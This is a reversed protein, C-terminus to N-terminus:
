ITSITPAGDFSLSVSYTANDEMPAAPSVSEILVTGTIKLHGAIADTIEISLKTKNVLADLFEAYTFYTASAADQDLKCDLSVSAEGLGYEVQKWGASDKTTTDRLARKIEHDNSVLGHVQQLTGSSVPKLRVILSTGNEVSM